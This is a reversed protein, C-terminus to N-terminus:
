AARTIESQGELFKSVKERMIVHEIQSLAGTKRLDAKTAAPTEGSQEALDKVYADVEAPSARLEHEDAIRALVLRRKVVFEARPRLQQRLRDRVEPDLDDTSGIMADAWALVVTDPVDFDNAEVVLRVLEEHAAADAEREAAEGFEKQLRARWEELTGCPGHAQAFADDLAPLAPARREILAIRLEAPEQRPEQGSRGAPLGVTFQGADGPALTRVAEEIQPLAQGRGLVFDYRRPAADASPRPLSGGKAEGALGPAADATAGGDVRRIEVTVTDGDQPVGEPHVTWDAKEARREELFRDVLAEAPPPAPRQVRFGGLRGLVVDPEVEFSVQLSLGGGPEERVEDIEAGSAPKLGREEVTERFIRRALEDVTRREIEEGFRQKVVQVAAKGARFGKLKVRSALRRAEGQKQSAVVAAPVRAVLTRRCRKGETLTVDFQPQSM